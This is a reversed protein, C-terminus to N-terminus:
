IMQFTLFSSIQSSITLIAILLDQTVKSTITVTSYQGHSGDIGSQFPVSCEKPSSASTSIHSALALNELIPLINTHSSTSAPPCLLQFPSSLHYSISVPAWPLLLFDLAWNIEQKELIPPLSLFFWPHRCLHKKVVFRPDGYHRQGSHNLHLLSLTPTLLVFHM